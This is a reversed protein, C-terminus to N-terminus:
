NFKSIAKKLASSVPFIFIGLVTNSIGHIIDFPLGAIIWAVTGKFDLGFAIAQFPAYLTGYLFGHLGCVACYLIVAIKEPTREPILLVALFPPLWIYLYPIWWLNFGGYIGCLLVFIYLPFIAKKRLVVTFICILVGVLHVNPLADLLLKSLFLIVGFLAYLSIEWVKLKQKM